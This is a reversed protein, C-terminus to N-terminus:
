SIISFTIPTPPTVVSQNYSQVLGVARQMNGQVWALILTNNSTGPPMQSGFATLFNALAADTLSVTHAANVTTGDDTQITFSITAV